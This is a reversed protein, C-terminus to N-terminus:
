IKGAERLGQLASNARLIVANQMTVKGSKKKAGLEPIKGSMILNYQEVSKTYEERSEYLRGLEYHAFWVIFHDLVLDKGHKLVNNLSILAQEGAEAQPIPSEAPRPQVHPEPYAIFRLVIARLLHALCYDDWYETGSHYTSPDKIEHLEALVTSIQDLHQEVLVFRPSLALCNLIYGLEIGPLCLRGGQAVFKRARRSVFKELPISKNAIRQMLDPVTKMGEMVKEPEADQEYLTTAKAYAYISKSWNSEKDLITFCQHGKQWSAMALSVLGLDWYCIHALQLFERQAQIAKHFSDVAMELQTHTSNLRGAFYLWFIGNEYRDLEYDLINEALAVDVKGVPLYSSIVLHHMLLVMDCIQRRIGEKEVEMGPEPQKTSWKGAKM